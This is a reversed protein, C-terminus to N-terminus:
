QWSGRRDAKSIGYEGTNQAYSANRNGKFNEDLYDSKERAERAKEMYDQIDELYYKEPIKMLLMGKRRIRDDDKYRSFEQDRDDMLLSPHDAYRVFRWGESYKEDINDENSQNGLREAMWGYVMGEPILEPPFYLKGKERYVRSPRVPCGTLNQREAEISAERNMQTHDWQNEFSPSNGDSKKTAM